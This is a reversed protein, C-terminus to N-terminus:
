ENKAEVEDIMEKIANWGITACKIRNAQKYVNQFAVAEELIDADYEKAANYCKESMTPDITDDHDLVLCRYKM